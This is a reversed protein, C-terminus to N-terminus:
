IAQNPINIVRNFVLWEFFVGELNSPTKIKLLM